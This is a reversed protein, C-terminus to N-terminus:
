WDCELEEALLMAISTETGQGNEPKHIILTVVDDTGIRVFANPTIAAAGGPRFQAEVVADGSAPFYVGILLGGTAATTAKLFGRRAITNESHMVTETSRRPGMIARM